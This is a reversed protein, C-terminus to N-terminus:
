RIMVRFDYTGAAAGFLSIKFGVCKREVPRCTPGTYTAGDEAWVGYGDKDLLEFQYSFNAPCKSAWSHVFDAPIWESVAEGSSDVVIQVDKYGYNLV